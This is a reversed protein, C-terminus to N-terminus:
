PKLCIFLCNIKHFSVVDYKMSSSNLFFKFLSICTQLSFLARRFLIFNKPDDNVTLEVPCCM